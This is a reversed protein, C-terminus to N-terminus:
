WTTILGPVSSVNVTLRETTMFYRNRRADKAPPAPFPEARTANPTAATDRHPGASARPQGGAYVM